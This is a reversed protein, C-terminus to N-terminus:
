QKVMKVVAVGEGSRLVAYYLGEPLREPTWIFRHKGQPMIREEAKYVVEGIANYITLQVHSPEKLEYEITTSTKFPNPFVAITEDEHLDPVGASCAEQVEEQSNCAPANDHITIIGGPASLYDCISKVACDSLSANDRIFLNEISNADINDLGTLSTLSPNGCGINTNPNFYGIHIDGEVSTLSDIGTLSTLADNCYVMLDEGISTLNNLGTLSTLNTNSGIWLTGGISTLSELGTLNDLSANEDIGLYGGISTLSELGTLSTLANCQWILLIGGVSTVNHLGNLNMLPINARISLQGPISTLNELATISSLVDNNEISLYEGISTLNDLGTLSTLAVNYAIRLYGEISILANLGNLNTIDDGSINVDGVIDTCSPYNIPFSDIQSQTTFTIGDPLCPQVYPSNTKAFFLYLSTGGSVLVKIYYISNHGDNKTFAIYATDNEFLNINNFLTYEPWYGWSKHHLFYENTSAIQDAFITDNWNYKKIVTTTRTTDTLHEQYSIDLHAFFNNQTSLSIEKWGGMGGLYCHLEFYIDDDQDQDLDLSYNVPYYLCGNDYSSVVTDQFPISTGSLDSSDIVIYQAAICSSWFILTIIIYLRKMAIKTHIM